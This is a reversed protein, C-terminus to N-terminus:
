REWSEVSIEVNCYFTLVECAAACAVNVACALDIDANSFFSLLTRGCRNWCFILRETLVVSVSMSVDGLDLAM